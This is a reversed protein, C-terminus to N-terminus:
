YYQIKQYKEIRPLMNVIIIIIMKITITIVTKIIIM